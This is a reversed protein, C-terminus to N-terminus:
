PQGPVPIKEDFPDEDAPGAPWAPGLPTEPAGV